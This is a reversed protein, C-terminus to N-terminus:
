SVDHWTYSTCLSNKSCAQSCASASSVQGYYIIRDTSQGPQVAGYVNDQGDLSEITAKYQKWILEKLEVGGSIM